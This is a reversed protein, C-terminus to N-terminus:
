PKLNYAILQIGNVVLSIVGVTGTIALATELGNAYARLDDEVKVHSTTSNEQSTKLDDITVQLGILKTAQESITTQLAQSNATQRASIQHLGKAILGIQPKMDPHAQVIEQCAQYILDEAEQSYASLSVVSLLCVALFLRGISKSLTM